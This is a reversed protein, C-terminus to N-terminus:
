PSCSEAQLSCGPAQRVGLLVPINSPKCYPWWPWGWQPASDVSGLLVRACLLHGM